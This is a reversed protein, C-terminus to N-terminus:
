RPSRLRMAWVTGDNALAWVADGVVTPASSFGYPDVIRARVGLDEEGVLLLGTGTPILLGASSYALAGTPEGSLRRALLKRGDRWRLAVLTHDGDVVYCREGVVLPTGFGEGKLQWREDGDALAISRLGGRHSAALVSRSSGSGVLVPTSDVDPLGDGRGALDRSWVIGGDRASALLLRGDGLGGLVLDGVLVPAGHGEALFEGSVEAQRRWRVTGDGRDLAYLSGPEAILYLSSDDVVIGARVAVDLAVPQKWLARGSARDLAWVVGGVSAIYVVGAYEVPDADVPDATPSRWLLAGSASQLASVGSQHGVFVALGDRSPVVRALRRPKWALATLRGTSTRWVPEIASQAACPVSPASLSVIAILLAFALTPSTTRTM